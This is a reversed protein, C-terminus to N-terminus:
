SLLGQRDIQAGTLSKTLLGGLKNCATVCVPILWPSWDLLLLLSHRIPTALVLHTQHDVTLPLATRVSSSEHALQCPSPCCGHWGGLRNSCWILKLYYAILYAALQSVSDM